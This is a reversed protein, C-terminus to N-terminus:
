GRRLEGPDLGFHGNEEGVGESDQLLSYRERRHLRLRESGVDACECECEKFSCLPSSDGICQHFMSSLVISSM